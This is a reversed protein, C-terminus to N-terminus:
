TNYYFTFELCYEDHSVGIRTIYIFKSFLESSIILSIDIFYHIVSLYFM